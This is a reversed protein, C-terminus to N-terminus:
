KLGVFFKMLKEVLNSHKKKMKDWFGDSWDMVVVGNWQKPLDKLLADVMKGGYGKIASNMEFFQIDKHDLAEVAEPPL